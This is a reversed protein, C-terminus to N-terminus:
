LIMALVFILSGVARTGSWLAQSEEKWPMVEVGTDPSGDLEYHYPTSQSLLGALAPSPLSLGLVLLTAGAAAKFTVKSNTKWLKMSRSGWTIRSSLPCEGRLCFGM